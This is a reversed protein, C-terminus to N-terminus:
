KCDGSDSTSKTKELCIKMKWKPKLPMVPEDCSNRNELIKKPISIFDKKVEVSSIVEIVDAQSAPIGVRKKKKKKSSKAKIPSKSPSKSPLNCPSKKPSKRVVKKPSGHVQAKVTVLCLDKQQKKVVKSRDVPTFYRTISNEVPLPLIEDNEFEDTDGNVVEPLGRTVPFKVPSDAIVECDTVDKKSISKPLTPSFYHMLNRNSM